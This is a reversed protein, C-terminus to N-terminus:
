MAQVGGTGGAHRKPALWRVAVVAPETRGPTTGAATAPFGATGHRRARWHRAATPSSCAGPGRRSRHRSPWECPRAPGPLRASLASM